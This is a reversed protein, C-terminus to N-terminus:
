RIIDKTISCMTLARYLCKIYIWVLKFQCQEDTVDVENYSLSLYESEIFDEKGTNISRVAM